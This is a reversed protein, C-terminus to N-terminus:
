SKVEGIKDYEDKAKADNLTKRKVKVIFTKKGNFGNVIELEVDGKGYM